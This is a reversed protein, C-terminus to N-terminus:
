KQQEAIASKSAKLIGTGEVSSKGSILSVRGEVGIDISTEVMDKGGISTAIDADEGGKDVVNTGAGAKIEAIVSVDKLGSRDFEFEVGAGIKAEIRLPGYDSKALSHEVGITVTCGLFQDGFTEKDMDQKMGFQLFKIDMTTTMTNCDNRITGPGLKLVSHYKCNIDNFNALKNNGKRNEDRKICLTRTNFFGTETFRVDRLAALWNRQYALKTVEFQEPWQMFQMWYIEESLKLRYQHLYEDYLKEYTPNCETLYKSVREAYKPCFDKNPLGEGTQENDQEALKEIDKDYENKKPAMEIPYLAVEKTAKTLRFNIGGDKDMLQLKLSAKKTFFPVSVLNGASQGNNIANKVVQMDHKNISELKKSWVQEAQKLKSDLDAIKSDLQQRYEAWTPKFGVEQEATVPFAPHKFTGLALPDPDPKFPFRIDDGTLKYGLKRLRNEKDESYSHKISRKVAEVAKSTNGKSEEIFSKTYNAQPHYAYIRIVSDLYKEAKSIEGLGFFAQGLNNLITSNKPYRTNLNNLLPIALQEAGSMSLMSAYNNLNDANAPDDTCVKGMLCLAIEVRGLMWLGAAENGILASSKGDAKLQSYIKEGMTKSDTNIKQLVFKHASSIFSPISSATLPTNSISALRAADRKPVIATENEWAEKLQADTVKPVNKMSPMKIGLSDMMKKDEASMGDLEKQADKMMDEMEKQTPAKEKAAPKKTPQAFSMECFILCSIVLLLRIM